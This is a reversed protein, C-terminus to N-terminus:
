SAAMYNSIYTQEGEPITPVKCLGNGKKGVADKMNDELDCAAPKHGAVTDKKNKEKQIQLFFLFLIKINKIVRM